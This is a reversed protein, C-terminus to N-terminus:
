DIELVMRVLRDFGAGVVAAVLAAGGPHVVVQLDAGVLQLEFLQLPIRM